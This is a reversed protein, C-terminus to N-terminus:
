RDAIMHRVQSDPECEVPNRSPPWSGQDARVHSWVCAPIFRSLPAYPPRQRPTGRAHPSGEAPCSLTEPRAKREGRMRPAKTWAGSLRCAARKPSGCECRRAPRGRHSAYPGRSQNSPAQSPASTATQRCLGTELDHQDEEDPRLASARWTAYTRISPQTATPRDLGHSRLDPSNGDNPYPHGVIGAAHGASGLRTTRTPRLAPAQNEKPRQETSEFISFVLREYL